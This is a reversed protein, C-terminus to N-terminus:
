LKGLTYVSCLNSDIKLFLALEEQVQLIQCTKFETMEGQCADRLGLKFIRVRSLARRSKSPLEM